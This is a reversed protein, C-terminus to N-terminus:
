FEWDYGMLLISSYFRILCGLQDYILSLSFLLMTEVCLFLSVRNPREPLMLM